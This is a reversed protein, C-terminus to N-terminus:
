PPCCSPRGVFETPLVVECTRGPTTMLELLLNAATAGISVLDRCVVAVQPSHVEAVAVDDCGVFSVDVGRPTGELDLEADGESNTLLLSYGAQRPRRDAGTVASALVPNSIDSVTFGVSMTRRTRLGRALIDPRYGLERVAVNVRERMGPSVDVHQNVARSVTSTAVGARQAVERISARHPRSDAVLGTV